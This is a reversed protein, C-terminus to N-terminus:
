FGYYQFGFGASVGPTLLAPQEQSRDVTLGNVIAPSLGTSKVSTADFLVKGFVALGDTINARGKIGLGVTPSPTTLFAAGGELALLMDFGQRSAVIITAFAKASLGTIPRITAWSIYKSVKITGPITDGMLKYDLGAFGGYGFELGTEIGPAVEYSIGLEQGDALTSAARVASTSGFIRSDTNMGIEISGRPKFVDSSIVNHPIRSHYADWKQRGQYSIAETALMTVSSISVDSVQSDQSAMEMQITTDLIVLPAESLHAEIFVHPYALRRAVNANRGSVPSASSMAVSSLSSPSVKTRALELLTHTPVLKSPNSFAALCFGLLAILTMPVDIKSISTKWAITATESSISEAETNIIEQLVPLRLALEIQDKDAPQIDGRSSEIMERLRQHAALLKQKEPEHTISRLLEASSSGDLDGDLYAQVQEEFSLIRKM